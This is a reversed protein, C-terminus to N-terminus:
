KVVPEMIGMAANLNVMAIRYEIRSTAAAGSAQVLDTQAENLRTLTDVGARYSKEVHDRIKATLNRTKEQKKWTAHATDAIDLAEQIEASM